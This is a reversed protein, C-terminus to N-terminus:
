DLFRLSEKPPVNTPLAYKEKLVRTLEQQENSRMGPGQLIIRFIKHTKPTTEVFFKTFVGNPDTATFEYLTHTGSQTSHVTTTKVATAPDFTDGLKKNFAGAIIEGGRVQTPFASLVTVFLILAIIKM